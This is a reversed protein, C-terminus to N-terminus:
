ERPNSLRPRDLFELARFRLDEVGLRPVNQSGDATRRGDRAGVWGSGEGRQPHHHDGAAGIARLLAATRDRDRPPHVGPPLADDALWRAVVAPPAAVAVTGGGVGLETSPWATADLRLRTPVGDRTGEAVTAIDKFGAHEPPPPSTEELLDVLLRRPVM